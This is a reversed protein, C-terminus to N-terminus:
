KSKIKVKNNYKYENTKFNHSIKREAKIFTKILDEIPRFSM